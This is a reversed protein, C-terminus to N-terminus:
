ESGKVVGMTESSQIIYFGIRPRSTINTKILFKTLNVILNISITLLGGVLMQSITFKKM